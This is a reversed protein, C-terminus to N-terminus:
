FYPSNWSSRSSKRRWVPAVTPQEPVAPAPSDGATGDNIEIVVDGVYITDGVKMNIKSVIGDCPSYIETNVKDTEVAFMEDGDKIKNGVKTM